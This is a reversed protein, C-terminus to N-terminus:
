DRILWQSDSSIKGSENIRCSQHELETVESLRRVDDCEKYKNIDNIKNIFIKNLIFIISFIIAYLLLMAM